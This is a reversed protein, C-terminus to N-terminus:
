SGHFLYEYCVQHKCRQLAGVLHTLPRWACGLLVTLYLTCSAVFVQVSYTSLMGPGTVLNEHMHNAVM